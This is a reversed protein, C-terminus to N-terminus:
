QTDRRGSSKPISGMFPKKTRGTGASLTLSAALATARRWASCSVSTRRRAWGAATYTVRIVNVATNAYRSASCNGPPDTRDTSAGSVASRTTCALRNWVMRLATCRTM